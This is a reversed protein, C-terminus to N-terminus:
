LRYFKIHFNMKVVNIWKSFQTEEEVGATSPIIFLDAPLAHEACVCVCVYARVYGRGSVHKLGHM